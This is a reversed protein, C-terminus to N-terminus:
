YQGRCSIIKPLSLYKAYMTLKTYCYIHLSYALEMVNFSLFIFLFAKAYHLKTDLIYETFPQSM